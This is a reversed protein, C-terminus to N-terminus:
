MKRGLIKYYFEGYKGLGAEAVIMERDIQADDWKPNDKKIRRYLKEQPTLKPPFGERKKAEDKKEKRKVPLIIHPYVHKQWNPEECLPCFRDGTEPIEITEMGHKPCILEKM